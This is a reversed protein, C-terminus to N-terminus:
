AEYDAPDFVGALDFIHWLMGYQDGRGFVHKGHYFIEGDDNKFFFGLGPYINEGVTFEMDELFQNDRSSVM